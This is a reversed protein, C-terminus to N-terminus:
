TVSPSLHTSLVSQPVPCIHSPLGVLIQLVGVQASALVCVQEGPVHTAPNAEDQWSALLQPQQAGLESVEYVGQVGPVAQQLMPLSWNAQLLLPAQTGAPTCCHVDPAYRSGLM